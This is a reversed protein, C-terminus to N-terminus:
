GYIVLFQIMKKEHSVNPLFNRNMSFVLIVDKVRILSRCVM